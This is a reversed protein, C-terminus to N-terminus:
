NKVCKGSADPYMPEPYKCYYGEPCARDGKEGGFGGCSKGEVSTSDIFKFTSLIQDFTKKNIEATAHTKDFTFSIMLLENTNNGLYTYYYHTIQEPYVFEYPKDPHSSQMMTRKGGITIEKPIDYTFGPGGGVGSGKPWFGSNVNFFEEESINKWDTGRMREPTIIGIEGFVFGESTRANSDKIEYSLNQFLAHGRYVKQEYDKFDWSPPYSLTYKSEANMYTKWNATPDPTPTPTVQVVPQPELQKETKSQVALYTAGSGLLAAIIIIVGLLLYNTRPAVPNVTPQVPQPQPDM